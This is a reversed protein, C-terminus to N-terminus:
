NAGAPRVLVKKDRVDIVKVRANAPIYDVESWVEVKTGNFDADGHPRLATKTMGEKGIFFGLGSIDPKEHELTENLVFKGYIQRRKIWRMFLIFAPILIALGGAVAIIGIIGFNTITLVISAALAIFGLIGSVGFDMGATLVEIVFLAVGVALLILVLYIINMCLLEKEKKSKVIQRRKTM